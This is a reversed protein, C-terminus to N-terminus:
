KMAIIFKNGTDSELRRSVGGLGGVEALGRRWRALMNKINATLPFLLLESVNSVPTLRSQSKM